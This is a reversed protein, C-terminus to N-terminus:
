ASLGFKLTIDTYGASITIREIVSALVARQEQISMQPWVDQIGELKHYARMATQVANEKLREDALSRTLREVDAKTANITDLLYADGSDGYLGYLRRLKAEARNLQEQLMDNVSGSRVAKKANELKERSVSFLTKIVGAEVDEAFPSPVDCNPDRVLYPKSRQQSYCVLKYGAKGWKMYRM